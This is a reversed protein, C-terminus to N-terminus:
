ATPAAPLDRMAGAFLPFRMQTDYVAFLFPRDCRFEPVPAPRSRRLFLVATAAAAETGEENVEVVARHIVQSVVVSPDDSVRLLSGETTLSPLGAKAGLLATLDVIGSDFKFRPLFVQVSVPQAPDHLASWGSSGAVEDILVDIHARGSPLVFLGCFRGGKYPLVLVDAKAKGVSVGSAYRADNGKFRHSMMQLEVDGKTGHFTASHTHVKDFSTAWAGKFYATNVLVALTNPTPNDTLLEKILGKTATAVFQNIPDRTTLPAVFGGHFIKTFAKSFDDKVGGRAWLSNAQLLELGEGRGAELSAQAKVIYSQLASLSPQGFLALLEAELSGGESSGCAVMALAIAVSYGSVFTTNPIHALLQGTLTSFAGPM